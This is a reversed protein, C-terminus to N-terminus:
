NGEVDYEVGREVDFAAVGVFAIETIDDLGDHGSVPDIVADMSEHYGEHNAWQEALEALYAVSGDCPMYPVYDHCGEVCPMLGHECTRDILDAM